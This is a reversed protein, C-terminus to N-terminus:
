GQIQDASPASVNVAQDYTLAITITITGMDGGNATVVLKSPRLDNKRVYVDVTGTGTIGPAASALDGLDKQTLAIVVHYCDTDGCKEDAAKTPPTSLKDLQAKLDEIAKKPDSAQSAPDSGSTSTDKTYKDTQALPGSLKTYVTNDVVIVDAGTNLLAPASFTIHARKGPLDVDGSLTTGSLDLPGGSGQGTLDLKIKGTVDTQLHFTKVDELATVSKTLIDKPDTLAPQGSCAALALAAVAAVVFPIRRSM